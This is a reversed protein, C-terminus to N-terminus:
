PMLTTLIRDPVRMTSPPPSNTWHFPTPPLHFPAGGFVGYWSEWERKTATFVDLYYGERKATDVFGLWFEDGETAYLWGWLMPPTRLDDLYTPVLEDLTQPYYGHDAHYRDLSEVIPLANERAIRSPRGWEEFFNFVLVPPIACFILLIALGLIVIHNKKVTSEKACIM